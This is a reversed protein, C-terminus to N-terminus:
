PFAPYIDRFVLGGLEGGLRGGIILGSSQEFRHGLSPSLEGFKSL